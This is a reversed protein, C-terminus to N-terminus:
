LLIKRRELNHYSASHSRWYLEVKSGSPGNRQKLVAIEGMDPTTTLENYYEDRYVSLVTDAAEEIEGSDRLDHLQPRKEGRSEVGRNLQATVIVPVDIDKALNKLSRAATSVQEYRSNSGPVGILGLYDLMIYDIPAQADVRRADAMIESPSLGPLDNIYLPADGIQGTARYFAEKDKETIDGRRLKQLDVNIVNAILRDRLEEKSMELSFVAGRMNKNITMNAVMGMLLATKGMAPRGAVITLEQPKLGNLLRDLDLYGTPIGAVDVPNLFRHEMDSLYDVMGAGIHTLQRKGRGDVSVQYVLEQAAGLIEAMPEEEDWAMTSIKGAMNILRRRQAAEAVTRAYTPANISTPVETILGILYVEARDQKDGIDAKGNKRLEAMVTIADIPDGKATLDQMAKYIIGHTEMYFDDPKVLPTVLLLADGDILISGLLAKEAFRDQPPLHKSMDRQGNKSAKTRVM